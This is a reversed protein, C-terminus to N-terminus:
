LPLTLRSVNSGHATFRVHYVDPNTLRSWHAFGVSPDFSRLLLTMLNGHTVVMAKSAGVIENIVAIGRKMAARSSEGDTFVRDLDEFSAELAQRWDASDPSGLSRERLREDIRIPLGNRHAFPTISQVAREYPSCIIQDVCQPPLAAALADAQLRGADTLPADPAQGAAECHRVLYLQEM